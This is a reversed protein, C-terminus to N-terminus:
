KALGFVQLDHETITAKGGVKKAANELAIANKTLKPDVTSGSINMSPIKSGLNWESWGNRNFASVSFRSMMSKFNDVMKNFQNPDTGPIPLPFTQGKNSPKVGYCNVGFKNQPDFYGGNIGPRGCATRKTVDTEKQLAEWTSEQTPFLAMGGQTWGYSCWEAGSNFADNVQDYTALDAGYAACVANAEDYTFENGGINFVEKMELSKPEPIISTPPAPAPAKEYFGIDLGDPTSTIDLVGTKFLVIGVVGILALLVITPVIGLSVASVIALLVLGVISVLFIIPAPLM